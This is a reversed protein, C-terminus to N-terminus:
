SWNFRRMVAKAGLRSVLVAVIVITLILVVIRTQDQTKYLDFYWAVATLLLSTLLLLVSRVLQEIRSPPLRPM